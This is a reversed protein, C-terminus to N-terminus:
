WHGYADMNCAHLRARPLDDETRAADYDATLCWAYHGDWNPNWRLNAGHFCGPISQNKEFQFVALDAYHHCYGPNAAQVSSAGVLAALAIVISKM